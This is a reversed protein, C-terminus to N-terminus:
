KNGRDLIIQTNDKVAQTNEQMAAILKVPQETAYMGEGGGYGRRQDAPQNTVRGHGQSMSESAKAELDFNASQDYQHAFDAASSTMKLIKDARERSMGGAEPPGAFFSAIGVEAQALLDIVGFYADAALTAGGALGQGVSEMAKSVNAKSRKLKETPRKSLLQAAPGREDAAAEVRSAIHSVPTNETFYLGLDGFDRQTGLRAAILTDGAQALSMGKVTAVLNGMRRTADEPSVGLGVLRMVRETAEAKDQPTVPVMNSLADLGRHIKPVEKAYSLGLQGSTTIAKKGADTTETALTILKHMFAFSGAIGAGGALLDLGLGQSMVQRIGGISQALNSAGQSATQNIKNWFTSVAQIPAGFNLSTSPIRIATGAAQVGQKTLQQAQKLGKNLESLDVGIGVYGGGIRKGKAM